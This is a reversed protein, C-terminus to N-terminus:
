NKEWRGPQRRMGGEQPVARDLEALRHFLTTFVITHIEVSPLSLATPETESGTAVMSSARLRMSEPVTLTPWPTKKLPVCSGTVNGSPIV